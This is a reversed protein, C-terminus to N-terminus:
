SGEQAGLSTNLIALVLLPFSMGVAAAAKPVLSHATMGPVTNVELVFPEGREDLMLDVRGWGRCGLADFAALAVEALRQEAAVPLGSPILYRTDEAHYKAHYDYFGSAPVIGIAPLAQRGIIGVTYEGGALWREVFVEPDHRRAEALARKLEEHNRAIGIGVTSGEHVPKVVCPLGFDAAVAAADEEPRVPRFDATPIGLDRWIRKAKLKDLALASATAGSGTYPIGLLELAGQLRGDEGDRGHLMIFVRDFAAAVAGRVTAEAGEVPRADIGLAVLAELVAKGGALSVERESGAGGMAVAVRGYVGPDLNM